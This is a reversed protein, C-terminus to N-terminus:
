QFLIKDALKGGIIAGFIPALIYVWAGKMAISGWGAALAVIRPGFDRAPNFGAQTLPAIVSILAGVTSGILPPVLFPNKSTTENKPNTLAFIMFALMFTGYAEAFFAGGCSSVSWYEGFASASKISEAAGRVINNAAEFQNISDFFLAFNVAGAATAGLVQSFIFPLVKSWSFGRGM